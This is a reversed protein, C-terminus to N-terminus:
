RAADSREWHETVGFIAFREYITLDLRGGKDIVRVLCRYIRGSDPDVISGDVFRDGEPRLNWIIEMGLIPAGKRAGTCKECTLAAGPQDAGPMVSRLFGSVTGTPTRLFEVIAYPADSEGDIARWQGILQSPGASATAAGISPSAAALPLATLAALALRRLSDPENPSPPQPM